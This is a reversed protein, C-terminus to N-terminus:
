PEVAQILGNILIGANYTGIGILGVGIAPSIVQRCLATKAGPIGLARATSTLPNTSGLLPRAGVWSKPIPTGLFLPLAYPTPDILYQNVFNSYNGWYDLGLPDTWRLPNNGVYTYTNIGGRLGIRDSQDYRGIQANYYRAMNYYLGTEADYYQGPFRLNFVFTGLGSPNQDPLSNGFAESEWSWVVRNDSPRTIKRRRAKDFKRRTNSAGLGTPPADRVM